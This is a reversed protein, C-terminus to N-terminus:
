PAAFASLYPGLIATLLVFDKPIMTDGSDAKVYIRDEEGDIVAKMEILESVASQV